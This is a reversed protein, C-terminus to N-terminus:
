YKREVIFHALYELLTGDGPLTNLCDIAEGLLEGALRKSEELGLLAPFTPKDQEADSGQPKGIIQTDGEVDLIDDKIQFALGISEGYRALADVYQHQGSVIAPMVVAARILAGTKLSHMRKLGELDLPRGVSELDVAQGGAMGRSGCARSFELLVQDLHGMDASALLEFALAQLADGALIATAEDYAMHCSPRGRRVDDDDMAPLDDHVLSYAHILELAAGIADVRSPELGVAEAAAYCLIPRVRKGGGVVAYRMAEHLKRPVESAPPLARELTDDARRRFRDFREQAPTSQTDPMATM